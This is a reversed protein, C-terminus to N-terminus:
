INKDRLNAMQVDYNPMVVQIVILHPQQTNRQGSKGWQLISATTEEEHSLRPSLMESQKRTLYSFSLEGYKQFKDRISLAVHARKENFTLTELLVVNPALNDLRKNLNWKPGKFFFDNQDMLNCINAV